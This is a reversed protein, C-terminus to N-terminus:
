YLVNNKYTYNQVITSFILLKVAIAYVFLMGANCIKSSKESDNSVVGNKIIQLNINFYSIRM